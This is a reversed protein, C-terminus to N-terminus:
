EKGELKKVIGKLAGFRGELDEARKCLRDYTCDSIEPENKDYYLIDHRTLEENL